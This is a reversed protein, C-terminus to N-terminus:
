PHLHRPDGGGEPLTIALYPNHNTPRSLRHLPQQRLDIQGGVAQHKKCSNVCQLRQEDNMRHRYLCAALGSFVLQQFLTVKNLLWATWHHRERTGRGKRM